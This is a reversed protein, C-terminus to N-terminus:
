GNCLADTQEFRHKSHLVNAQSASIPEVVLILNVRDIVRVRAGPLLVLDDLCVASWFRGQCDVQGIQGPQLKDCVIASNELERVEAAITPDPEHYAISFFLRFSQLLHRQLSHRKM